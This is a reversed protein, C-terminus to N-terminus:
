EKGVSVYTNVETVIEGVGGHSGSIDLFVKSFAYHGRKLRSLICPTSKMAQTSETSCNM